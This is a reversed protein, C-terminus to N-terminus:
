KTPQAEPGTVGGVHPTNNASVVVEIATDLTTAKRAQIESWLIDDVIQDGHPIGVDDMNTDDDTFIGATTTRHKGVTFFWGVM